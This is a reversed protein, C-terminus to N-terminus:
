GHQSGTIGTAQQIELDLLAVAVAQLATLEARITQLCPPSYWWGLKQDEYMYCCSGSAFSWTTAEMKEASTESAWHLWM